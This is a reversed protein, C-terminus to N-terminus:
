ISIACVNSVPVLLDSTWSDTNSMYNVLVFFSCGVPVEVTKLYFFLKWNQLHWLEHASTFTHRLLERVTWTLIEVAAWNVQRGPPRLDCTTSWHQECNWLFLSGLRCLQTRPTIPPKPVPIATDTRWSSARHSTGGTSCSCWCCTGCSTAPAWTTSSVQPVLRFLFRLCLTLHQFILM